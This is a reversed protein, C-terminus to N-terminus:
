CKGKGPTYLVKVELHTRGAPRVLHFFGPEILWAKQPSFNALIRWVSGKWPGDPM